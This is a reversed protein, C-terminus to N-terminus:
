SNGYVLLAGRVDDGQYHLSHVFSNNNIFVPESLDISGAKSFRMKFKKPNGKLVCYLQSAGKMYMLGSSNNFDDRHLDIHSHPKMEVYQIQLVSVFGADTLFKKLINDKLAVVPTLPLEPNKQLSKCKADNYFKQDKYVLDLDLSALLKKSDYKLDAKRYPLDNTEKKWWYPGQGRAYFNRIHSPLHVPTSENFSETLLYKKNLNTWKLLDEQDLCSFVREMLVDMDGHLWITYTNKYQSGSNLIHKIDINNIQISKIKQRVCPIIVKCWKSPLDFTSLVKKTSNDLTQYQIYDVPDSCNIKTLMFYKITITPM